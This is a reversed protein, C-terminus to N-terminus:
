ERIVVVKRSWTKGESRGVFLYIGDPLPRLNYPKRQTLDADVSFADIKLGVADFVEFEILGTLGSCFLIVEGNTPNPFVDFGQNVANESIDFYSTLIYFEKHATGCRNIATASLLVTDQLYTYIYLTCSEGKGHSELHWNDCGVEWIVTDVTAGINELRISYDNPSIHTESGGVPWHTGIIEFDPVFNMDIIREIISDCGLVTELEDIFHGGETQEMGLWYFTVCVVTDLLYKVSEGVTVELYTTDSQEGARTIVCGYTGSMEVTANPRVPNQQNSSWSGDVMFWHYESGSTGNAHFFLDDGSCVPMEYSVLPPLITCDTTANGSVKSFHINCVRNSYNTILLIYYEGSSANRIFCAENWDTSYSCSVVKNSTLGDPCPEYPDTFPGWCCFDIDVQPTSYMYINLDGPDLIRLYYWAPNPTTRLCDYSPGFEGSGADVGAPFEYLGNDTCFPDSYLCVNNQTFARMNEQKLLAVYIEEPLLDRWRVFMDGFAQKDLDSYSQFERRKMRLFAELDAEGSCNSRVAVRSSEDLVLDFSDSELLSSALFVQEYFSSASADWDLSQAWVRSGLLLLPLLVIVIHTVRKM